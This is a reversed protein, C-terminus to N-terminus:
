LPLTSALPRSILTRKGQLFRDEHPCAPGLYLFPALDTCQLFPCSYRDQLIQTSCLTLNDFIFQRFCWLYKM